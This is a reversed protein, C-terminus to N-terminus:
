LGFIRYELVDDKGYLAKEKAQHKLPAKYFLFNNKFNYIGIENRGPNTSFERLYFQPVYHHEIRSGMCNDGFYDFGITGFENPGEQM